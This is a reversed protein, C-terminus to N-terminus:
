ACSYPLTKVLATANVQLVVGINYLCVTLTDVVLVALASRTRVSSMLANSRRWMCHSIFPHTIKKVQSNTVKFHQKVAPLDVAARFLVAARKLKIEFDNEDLM